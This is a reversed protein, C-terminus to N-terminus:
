AADELAPWAIFPVAPEVHRHARGSQIKWVIAKSVGHERVLTPQSKGSFKIDRVVEIPLRRAHGGKLNKAGGTLRVADLSNESHTGWALNEARNNTKNGDLHRVQHNPSPPPGHFAECVLRHVRRLHQKRGIHLNLHCYGKDNLPAALIVGAGRGLSDPMVRKVRGLDSVAYDPAEAITLWQEM